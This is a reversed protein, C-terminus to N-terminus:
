DSIGDSITDKKPFELCGDSNGVISGGLTSNLLSSGERVDTNDLEGENRAPTVTGGLSAVINSDIVQGSKTGDMSPIISCLILKKYVMSVGSGTELILSLTSVIVCIRRSSAADSTRKQSPNFKRESWLSSWCSSCGRMYLTLSASSEVIEDQV